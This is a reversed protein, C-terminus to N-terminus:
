GIGMLGEMDAHQVTGRHAVPLGVPRLIIDEAVIVVPMRFILPDVQQDARRGKQPFSVGERQQLGDGVPQELMFRRFIHHRLRIDAVGLHDVDELLAPEAELPLAVQRIFSGGQHKATPLGKVVWKVFSHFGSIGSCAKERSILSTIPTPMSGKMRTSAAMSVLVGSISAKNKSCFGRKSQCGPRNISPVVRCTGKRASKTVM